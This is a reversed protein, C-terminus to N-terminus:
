HMEKTMAGYKLREHDSILAAFRKPFIAKPLSGSLREDSTSSTSAPLCDTISLTNARGCSKSDGM